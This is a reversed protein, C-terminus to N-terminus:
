AAASAAAALRDAIERLDAVVDDVTHRPGAQITVRIGHSGRHQREAPLASPRGKSRKSPRPARRRSVEGATAKHDLGEAVVRGALQRQDDADALKSIEYAATPRIAGADVQAAVDEPLRLLALSRYVGTSEVGLTEALQQASWGNLTMLRDYARAQEVPQLDARVANEVVQEALIDSESLAREIFEVRIRELGALKCARLRREGVLVVWAGRAPDHRVRIPALQGYRRISEALRQLEVPHFETRPQPGCAIADLPLEAFTRAKIAGAYKDPALVSAPPPESPRAAVTQAINAGFRQLLSDAKASM